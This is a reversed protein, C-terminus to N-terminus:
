FYVVKSELEGPTIKMARDMFAGSGIMGARVREKHSRLMRHM